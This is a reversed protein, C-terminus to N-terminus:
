AWVSAAGSQPPLQTRNNRIAAAENRPHHILPETEDLNECARVRSQRQMQKTTLAENGQFHWHEPFYTGFGELRSDCAAIVFTSADTPAVDM